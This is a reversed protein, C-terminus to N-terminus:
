KRIIKKTIKQEGCTITVFYIGKSLQSIDPFQYNNFGEKANFNEQAIIQGAINVMNVEVTENSKAFFNVTFTETFPNPAISKIEFDSIKQLGDNKVSQVISYTFRGDFDTQRLRYYSIGDLPDADTAAYYLTTTSNNAGKQQSVPEFNEGDASREVTFYSNNTESATSWSLKVKGENLRADFYVLRIPLALNNSFFSKFYLSNQRTQTTSATSIVGTRYYFYNVNKYNIQFMAQHQSTDINTITGVSLPATARYTGSNNTIILPSGPSLGYSYPYTAEVFEQIGGGADIDVGSIALWPLITDTVTGAVKFTIKWLISSTKNAPVNIFPQWGEDYGNSSSFNDITNLTAGGSLAMITVWADVNSCADPFVYTANVQGDVGSTLTPFTFSLLEGYGISFDGFLTLGSRVATVASGVVTQTNAGQIGVSSWPLLNTLRNILSYSCGSNVVLSSVLETASLKYTGSLVPLNPAITWYGYTLM